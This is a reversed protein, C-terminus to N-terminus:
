PVAIDESCHWAIVMYMPHSTTPSGHSQWPVAVPSYYRKSEAVGGRLVAIGIPRAYYQWAEKPSAHTVTGRSPNPSCHSYRSVKM